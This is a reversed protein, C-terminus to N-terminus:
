SNKLKNIYGKSRLKKFEKLGEKINLLKTKLVKNAKNVNLNLKKGRKANLEIKDISISNILKNDLKFIEAIKKAFEFKTCKESGAIHLIGNYKKNYLEIIVRGLNNVLIPSFWVDNFVNLNENKELKDLMWEAISKKNQRNWGYINTRLIVYNCNIKKIKEEAILKTKGYINKPNTKNKESYNGFKGNFVSDTSIYVFYSKIDKAIKAINTSAITNIKKSQNKHTECYDVNTLAACHIIIDPKFEIIKNLDNKNLIDLKHNLCNPINPSVKGTAYVINNKSYMLCLNSGLMGNSGTILIKNKKLKKKQM